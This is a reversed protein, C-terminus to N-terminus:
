RDTMLPDGKGLVGITQKVPGDDLSLKVKGKKIVYVASAPDGHRFIRRGATVSISRGFFRSSEKDTQEHSHGADAESDPLDGPPVHKSTTEKAPPTEKDEPLDQSMLRRLRATDIDMEHRFIEKMYAAFLSRDLELSGKKMVSQVDAVMEEIWAYREDPNLAMAKVLVPRLDSRIKPHNQIKEKVDMQLIRKITEEVTAQHEVFREGTILEYLFVGIGYIDVRRDVADGRLQEPSFYLLKGAVPLGAWTSRDLLIRAIGFDIVKVEAEYSIMVNFSNVDQHIMMLNEGNIDKKRHFYALADALEYFLHLSLELSPPRATKKARSLLNAVNRGEIYELVIYYEQDIRGMDFIQVINSHNLQALTRAENVFRQVYRPNSSYEPLLKKIVVPKKFGAIGTTRALYIDSMGGKSIRDVLYYRGFFTSKFDLKWLGSSSGTSDQSDIM